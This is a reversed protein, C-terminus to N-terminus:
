DTGDPRFSDSRKKTWFSKRHPLKTAKGIQCDECFEGNQNTKIDSAELKNMYQSSLHGITQAM